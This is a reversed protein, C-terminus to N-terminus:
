EDAQWDRKAALHESAHFFARRTEDLTFVHYNCKPCQTAPDYDMGSAPVLFKKRCKPCTIEISDSAEGM